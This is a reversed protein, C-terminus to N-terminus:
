DFLDKFQQKQEDTLNPVLHTKINSLWRHVISNKLGTKFEEKTNWYIKENEFDDWTKPRVKGDYPRYKIGNCETRIGVAERFLLFYAKLFEKTESDYKIVLEWEEIYKDLREKELTDIRAMDFWPNKSSENGKIDIAYNGEPTEIKIDPYTSKSKPSSLTCTDPLKETLIKIIVKASIDQLQKWAIEYDDLEGKLKHLEASVKQIIEPKLGNITSIISM